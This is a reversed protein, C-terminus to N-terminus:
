AARDQAIPGAGQLSAEVMLLAWLARGHERRGSIHEEAMTQVAKRDILGTDLVTQSSALSRIREALPGRFWNSLPVVFGMKPRDIISSPLSKRVAKKLIFKSHGQHLRLHAPIGAAWELFKHDILPVRVELSHAMSARDVKTLIDGALYTKMDVYQAQSLADDAPAKDFFQRLHQSAEYGQLQRTMEPTYLRPREWDAIMSVSNFFAGASDQALSQFTSKARLPQPAWDLKPYLHGLASFMPGRLADPLMRRVREEAAHFKYRRYGAFLEDGG